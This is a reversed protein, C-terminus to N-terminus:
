VDEESFNKWEDVCHTRIAMPERSGIGNMLWSLISSGQRASSRLYFRRIALRQYREVPTWSAEWSDWPSYVQLCRSLIILTVFGPTIWPRKTRWGESRVLCCIWLEYGHHVIFIGNVQTNRTRIVTCSITFHLINSRAITGVKDLPIELPSM